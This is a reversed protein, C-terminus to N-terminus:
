STYHLVATATLIRRAFWTSAVIYYDKPSQNLTVLVAASQGVHV